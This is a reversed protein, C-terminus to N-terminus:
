VVETEDKNDEVKVGIAVANLIQATLLELHATQKISDKRVDDPNLTKAM